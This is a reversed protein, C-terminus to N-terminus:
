VLIAHNIRLKFFQRLLSFSLHVSNPAVIRFNPCVEVFL